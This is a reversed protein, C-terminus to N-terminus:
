RSAAQSPVSQRVSRGTVSHTSVTARPCFASTSRSGRFTAPGADRLGVAAGGPCLAAPTPGFRREAAAPAALSPGTRWDTATVAGSAGIRRGAPASGRGRRDNFRKCGGAPSCQRINGACTCCTTWYLEGRVTQRQIAPRGRSSTSSAM